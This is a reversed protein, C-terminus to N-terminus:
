IWQCLRLIPHDPLQQPVCLHDLPEDAFGHRHLRASHSSDFLHRPRQRTTEERTGGGLMEGKVMADRLRHPALFSLAHLEEFGFECTVMEM